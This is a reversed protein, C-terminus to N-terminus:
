RCCRPIQQVQSIWKPTNKGCDTGQSARTQCDLEHLDPQSSHQTEYPHLIQCVGIKKKDQFREEVDMSRTIRSKRGRLERKLMNASRIFKNREGDNAFHIFAHTIPKALCEIRASGFDMGIENIMEKLLQIVESETTESHFGTIVTECQNANM